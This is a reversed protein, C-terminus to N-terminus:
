PGPRAIPRKGKVMEECENALDDGGIEAVAALVDSTSVPNPCSDLIAWIADLSKGQEHLRGDLYQAVLSGGYYVAHYAYDQSQGSGKGRALIKSQRVLDFSGTPEIEMLRNNRAQFGRLGEEREILGAALLVKVEYYATFGEGVWGADVTTDVTEGNWWHFVEHCLTILSDHVVLSGCGAAGGHIPTEPVVTIAHRPAKAVPDVGTLMKAHELIAVVSPYIEEIKGEAGGFVALSVEAGGAHFVLLSGDGVGFYTNRLDDLGVIRDELWPSNLIWGDPLRFSVTATGPNGACNHLRRAMCVIDQSAVPAYLTNMGRLYGYDQGMYSVLKGDSGLPTAVRLTYSIDIPEGGFGIWVTAFDGFGPITQWVPTTKTGRQAHLTVIRSVGDVKTNRLFLHLFARGPSSVTMKVEVLGSEPDAVCIDYRINTSKGSFGLFVYLGAAVFLFFFILAFRKAM